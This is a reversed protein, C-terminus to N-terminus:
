FVKGGAMEAFKKAHENGSEILLNRFPRAQGGGSAVQQVIMAEYMKSALPNHYMDNYVGLGVGKKELENSLEKKLKESENFITEFLKVTKSLGNRRAYDNIEEYYNFYEKNKFANYRTPRMFAELVRKEEGKFKLRRKLQIAIEKFGEDYKERFGLKKDKNERTIREVMRRVAETESRM